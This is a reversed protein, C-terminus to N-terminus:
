ATAMPLTEDAERPSGFAWRLAVTTAFGFAAILLLTELRKPAVDADPCYRRLMLVCVPVAFLVLMTITRAVQMMGPERGLVQFTVQLLLWGLLLVALSVRTFPQARHLM